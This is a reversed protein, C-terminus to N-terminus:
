VCWGCTFVATVWDSGDAPCPIIVKQTARQHPSCNLDISGSATPDGCSYCEVAWGYDWRCTGCPFGTPPTMATFTYTCPNDDCSCAGGTSVTYSEPCQPAQAASSTVGTILVALVFVVALERISLVVTRAM